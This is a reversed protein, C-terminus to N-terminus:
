WCANMRKPKRAPGTPDEMRKPTKLDERVGTLWATLRDRLIVIHRRSLDLPVVREGGTPNEDAM